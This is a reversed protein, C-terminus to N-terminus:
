RYVRTEETAFVTARTTSYFTEPFSFVAFLDM